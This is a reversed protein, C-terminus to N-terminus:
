VVKCKLYPQSRNSKLSPRNKVSCKNRNIRLSFLSVECNVYRQPSLLHIYRIIALSPLVLGQSDRSLDGKTYNLNIHKVKILIYKYKQFYFDPFEFCSEFYWLHLIHLIKKRAFYSHMPLCCIFSTERIMQIKPTKGPQIFM